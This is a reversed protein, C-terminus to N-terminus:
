HFRLTRARDQMFAEDEQTHNILDSMFTELPTPTSANEESNKLYYCRILKAFHAFLEFQTATPQSDIFYITIFGLFIGNDAHMSLVMIPCNM